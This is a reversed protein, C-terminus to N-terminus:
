RSVGGGAWLWNTNISFRVGVLPDPGGPSLLRGGTVVAALRWPPVSGGLVRGAALGLAGLMEVVSGVRGAVPGPVVFASGFGAGVTTLAVVVQPALEAARRVWRRVTSVARGVAAAVPRYGKGGAALLLGAGIVEVVDARRLLVTAPLLVHSVLCSVCRSRRPRFWVVEEVDEGRVGRRRAWGWPALRGGCGAAPCVLEGVGLASEVVGPDVGVTLM